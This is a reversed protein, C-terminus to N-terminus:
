KIIRAPIGVATANDPLDTLVVANAGIKVNNGVEINGLIKAGAGVFVNNHLTPHRKGKSSGRGGLTVGHFITCDDGIIATEGIVVGSGHDILLGKGIFCAPHIEIGTFFRAIQSIIKAIIKFNNYYCVHAVRYLLIAHVGQNTLFIEVKGRSVPDRSQVAEVDYKIENKISIVISKVDEIVGIM